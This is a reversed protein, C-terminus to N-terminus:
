RGEAAHEDPEPPPPIERPGQDIVRGVAGIVAAGITAGTLVKMSVPHPVVAAITQIAGIFLLSQTSIWRWSQRWNQLLRM